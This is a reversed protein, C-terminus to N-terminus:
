VDAIETPVFHWLATHAASSTVLQRSEGLAVGPVWGTSAHAAGSVLPLNMVGHNSHMANCKHRVRTNVMFNGSGQHQVIIGVSGPRNGFSLLHMRIPFMICSTKKQIWSFTIWWPQARCVQSLRFLLIRIMVFPYNTQPCSCSPRSSHVFLSLVGAAPSDQCFGPTSSGQACHGWPQEGASQQSHPCLPQGVAGPAEPETSRSCGSCYQCPNRVASCTHMRLLSAQLSLIYKGIM